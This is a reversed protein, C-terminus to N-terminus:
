PTTAMAPRLRTSMREPGDHRWWRFTHHRRVRRCTSPRRGIASRASPRGPLTRRARAYRLRARFLNRGRLFDSGWESVSQETPSHVAHRQHWAWIVHTKEGGKIANHQVLTPLHACGCGRIDVLEARVLEAARRELARMRRGHSQYPYLTVAIADPRWLLWGDDDAMTMLGILLDRADPALRGTRESRYLSPRVMRTRSPPPPEDAMM